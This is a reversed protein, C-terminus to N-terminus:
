KIVLLETRRNIQDAAAADETSLTSIFAEDLLTGEEFQPYEKHLRKTIRQPETKGFGRWTLREPAIGGAILYDVVSKARRESLSLNYAANGVRDTHARLEVNAQPNQNLLDILENLPEESEPRLTARDFDYLINGISQPKTTASLIFDVEYEADEEENGSEFEQSVNLYGEAGAKMVYKVGRELSFRFSGDNKAVEKRNSGDNGVIRIIADPVPEDDKDIVYGSISINLEPLLFSYINDYGRADRRNSSFFGSEGQGFTIGFDDASSNIPAGMNSVSWRQKSENFAARFIDLGGLGPHGNSAFYLLTDGRMSPFMEDGDSNIDPGLNELSGGKEKLNIRWIDKGGFGGPMDSVFYLYRGSADVAPHGYASLTDNTITFKQPTSWSAEARQSTYIEVSTDANPQRRAVTLYMTQGDPSFCIAGEDADTNLEGKAPEPRQWEGKENKTSFFIDSRKTGTVESHNDGTAKETSSTFYLTNGTKDLFVPSFDSRLSNFVKAPKVVYRSPANDSLALQCGEIGHAAMMNKPRWQLFTRYAEIAQKYKGDAQLARGLGLYAASDEPLYRVANQYSAAARAPQSLRLYCNALNHSIAGKQRRQTTSNLKSYITKYTKAAEAYEGRKFQADAKAVSASNCGSLISTILFALFIFPANIKM